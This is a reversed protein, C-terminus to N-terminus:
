FQKLCKQLSCSLGDSVLAALDARMPLASRGGVKAIVRSALWTGFEMREELPWGKLLGAVYGAHYADGCGTSDIKEAIPFAPQYVVSDGKLGWSGHAGDTTILQGHTFKSLEILAEEPSKKGSLQRACELPLIIDTGLALLGRMRETDGSEFDLMTRCGSGQAAKLAWETANLDYSDVMLVKASRVAEVPIDERRLFGYDDLNVFVTRVATRPDIEVLAVAPRSTEDRVMLEVSVGYHKFQDLSIESLTNHGVRGVFATSYGLMAVASSGTGMPSGGQIMLEKVIHKTDPVVTQPLRVLVDVANLGIAIVDFRSPSVM